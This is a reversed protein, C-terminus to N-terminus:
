KSTPLPAPTSKEISVEGKGIVTLTLKDATGILKRITDVDLGKVSLGNIETIVMGPVLGAHDAASGPEVAVLYAGEPVSRFKIGFRPGTPQQTSPDAPQLTGKAIAQECQSDALGAGNPTGIDQYVVEGNREIVVFRRFGVYAGFHNKGNVYGCTWWGAVPRRLFGRWVGSVINQDWKFQASSPDFFSATIAQEAIRHYDEISSPAPGPDTPAQDAKAFAPSWCILSAVGFAFAAKRM